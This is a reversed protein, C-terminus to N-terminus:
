VYFLLSYYRMNGQCYIQSGTLGHALSSAIGGSSPCAIINVWLSIAGGAACTEPRTMCAKTHIGLDVWQSKTRYLSWANNVQHTFLISCHNIHVVIM